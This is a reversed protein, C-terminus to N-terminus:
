ASKSHRSRLIPFADMVANEVADSAIGLAAGFLNDIRQALMGTERSVRTGSSMVKSSGSLGSLLLGAAFGGGLAWWPHQRVYTKWDTATEFQNGLENLSQDIRQRQEAMHRKLEDPEEVM